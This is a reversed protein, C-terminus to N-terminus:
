GDFKRMEYLIQPITAQAPKRPSDGGNHDIQAIYLLFVPLLGFNEVPRQMKKKVM